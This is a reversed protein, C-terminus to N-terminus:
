EDKDGSLVICDEGFPEIYANEVEALKLDCVGHPNMCLGPVYFKVPMADPFTCLFWRLEVNTM